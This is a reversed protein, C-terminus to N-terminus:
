DNNIPELDVSYGLPEEKNEKGPQYICLPEEALYDGTMAYARARSGGCICRYECRGCKGKLLNPDRLNRFLTSDRYVEILEHSRVNGAAVPLFGSPCIEGIHSVFVFGRGDNITSLVPKPGGNRKWRQLAIRRFHQGQTTKIKYKVKPALDSLRDFLNEMEEGTLMDTKKARGTPV